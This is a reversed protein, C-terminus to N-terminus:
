IDVTFGFIHESLAEMYVMMQRFIILFRILIVYLQIFNYTLILM